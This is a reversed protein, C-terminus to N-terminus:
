DSSVCYGDHLDYGDACSTCNDSYDECTACNSDCSKCTNNNFTDKFNGAKCSVVCVNDTNLELNDACSSCFNSKGACTVCNSDCDQCANTDSDFYKGDDCTETGLVICMNNDGLVWGPWCTNCHDWTGSCTRCNDHCLKCSADSGDTSDQLCERVFCGTDDNYCRDSAGLHYGSFCSSCKETADTCTKCGFFCATCVDGIM